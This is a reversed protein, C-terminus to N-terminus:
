RAPRRAALDAVEHQEHRRAREHGRHHRLRALEDEVGPQGVGHGAGGRHGGEDVGGGHDHGADVHDGPEVAHEELAQRDAGRAHVQERDDAADGDDAAGPQREHLVVDLLHEGVRGHRLEPVHGHGEADAGPGRGQEVEEGVGHELGAQEEAGARDGVATCEKSMFSRCPRCAALEHGLGVHVKMIQVGRQDAQERQGAEPRLVLDEGAGLLEAAGAVGGEHDDPMM